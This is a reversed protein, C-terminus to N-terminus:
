VKEFNIQCVIWINYKKYKLIFRIIFSLFDFDFYFDEKSWIFLRNNKLYQEENLQHIGVGNGSCLFFFFYIFLIFFFYLLLFFIWLYKFLTKFLSDSLNTWITCFDKLFLSFNFIELCQHLAIYKPM